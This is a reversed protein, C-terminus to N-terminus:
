SLTVPASRWPSRTLWAPLRITLGSSCINSARALRRTGRYSEHVGEGWRQAFKTPSGGLVRKVFLPEAELRDAAKRDGQLVDLAQEVDWGGGIALAGLDALYQRLEPKSSELQRADVRFFEEM